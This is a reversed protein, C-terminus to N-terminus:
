EYRSPVHNFIIKYDDVGLSVCFDHIACLLKGKSAETFTKPEVIASSGFHKEERSFLAVWETDLQRILFCNEANQKVSIM